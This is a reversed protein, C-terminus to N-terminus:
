GGGTRNVGAEIWGSSNIGVESATPGASGRYGRAEARGKKIVPRLGMREERRIVCEGAILNAAVL